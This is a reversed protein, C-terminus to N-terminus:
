FKNFFPSQCITKSFPIAPMTSIKLGISNNICPIFHIDGTPTLIGGYFPPTGASLGFDILLFTSVTDNSTNIRRCYSIIPQHIEEYIYHHIYINGDPALVGSTSRYTVPYTLTTFTGDKSLKVDNSRNGLFYIDGNPSIVGGSYGFGPLRGNTEPLLYTSVVSDTNIKQGVSSDDPVFHIDGNPALVGGNYAGYLGSYTYILNYTSVVGSPSVKQGVMARYPVFHIYGNSDVVGGAYKQEGSTMGTYILSYTSVVGSSSVKQGINSEFPIFHIEGTPSLVGGHFLFGSSVSYVLSYTSVIGSSSVKQGVTATFPVFHIDGNIDLVGGRYFNNYDGFTSYTSVIPQSFVSGGMVSKRLMIEFNDWKTTTLKGDNNLPIKGPGADLGSIYISKDAM